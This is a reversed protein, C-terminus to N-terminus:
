SAPALMGIEHHALVPHRV